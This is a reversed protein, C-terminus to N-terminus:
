NSPMRSVPGYKWSLEAFVNFVNHNMVRFEERNDSSVRQNQRRLILSVHHREHLQQASLRSPESM